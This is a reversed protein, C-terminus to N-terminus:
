IGRAFDVLPAVILMKSLQLLAIALMPSLDLGALNPLFNRCRSLLPETLYSAIEYAPNHNARPMLIFGLIIKAFIAVSITSIIMDLLMAPLTLIFPALPSMINYNLLMFCISKLYMVAVLIVVTALDIGLLGPIIRRMPRVLPDTIQAILGCYPNRFDARCMQLLVRLLLSYIYISFIIDLLYNGANTLYNM